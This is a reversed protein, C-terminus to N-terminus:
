RCLYAAESNLDSNNGASVPFAGFSEIWVGKGSDWHVGYTNGNSCTIKYRTHGNFSDYESVSAVGGAFATGAILTLGAAIVLGRIMEM